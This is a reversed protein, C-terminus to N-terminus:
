LENGVLAIPVEACDEDNRAPYNLQPSLVISTGIVSAEATSRINRNTTRHLQIDAGIKNYSNVRGDDPLTQM